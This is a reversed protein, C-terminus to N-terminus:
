DPTGTLRIRRCLIRKEGNAETFFYAKEIVAGPIKANKCEVVLRDPEVVTADTVIDEKETARWKRERTELHYTDYSNAVYRQGTTGDWIGIIQGTKKSISCAMHPTRLAYHGGYLTELPDGAQLERGGDADVEAHMTAACAVVAIVVMGIRALSSM